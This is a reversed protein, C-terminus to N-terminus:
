RLVPLQRQPARVGAAGGFILAGIRGNGVPLSDTWLVAPTDHWPTLPSQQAVAAPASALITLALVAPQKM